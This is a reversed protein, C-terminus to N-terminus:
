PMFVVATSILVDTPFWCPHFNHCTHTVVNWLFMIYISIRAKNQWVTNIFSAGPAMKTHDLETQIWTNQFYCHCLETVWIKYFKFKWSKEHAQLTLRQIVNSRLLKTIIYTHNWFFLTIIINGPYCHTTIKMFAIYGFLWWALILWNKNTTTTPQVNENSSKTCDM